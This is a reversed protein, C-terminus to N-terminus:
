RPKWVSSRPQQRTIRCWSHPVFTKTPVINVQAGGSLETMFFSCHQQCVRRKEDDDEDLAKSLFTINKKNHLMSINEVSNVPMWARSHTM